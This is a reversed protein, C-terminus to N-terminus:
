SMRHGNLASFSLLAVLSGSLMPLLSMILRSAIYTTPDAFYTIPLSRSFVLGMHLGIPGQSQDFREIHKALDRVRAWLAAYSWTSSGYRVAPAFPRTRAVQLLAETPTVTNNTM